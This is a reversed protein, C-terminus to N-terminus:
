RRSWLLLLLLLVAKAGWVGTKGEGTGEGGGHAIAGLSTVSTLGLM